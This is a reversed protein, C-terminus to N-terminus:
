TDPLIGPSPVYTITPPSMYLNATYTGSGSDFYYLNRTLNGTNAVVTTTATTFTSFNATDLFAVSAMGQTPWNVANSINAVTGNSSYVLSGHTGGGSGKHIAYKQDVRYHGPFPFSLTNSQILVSTASGSVSVTATAVPNNLTSIFPYAKFNITSVGLSVTSLHGTVKINNSTTAGDSAPNINTTFTSRHFGFNYYGGSGLAPGFGIQAGASLPFLNNTFVNTASNCGVIRDTAITPATMTNTARLTSTFINSAQINISSISNAFLTGTSLGLTSISQIATNSGLINVRPANIVVNSLSQITVLNQGYILVEKEGGITVKGNPANVDINSNAQIDVTKETFLTYNGILNTLINSSEIQIENIAFFGLNSGGIAAQTQGIIAVSGGATLNIDIPCEFNINGNSLGIATNSSTILIPGGDVNLIQTTNSGSAGL